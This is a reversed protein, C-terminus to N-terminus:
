IKMKHEDVVEDGRSVFFAAVGNDMIIIVSM